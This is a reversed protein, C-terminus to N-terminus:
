RVGIERTRQGVAFALVGYLGAGALLLAIAGFAAFSRAVTREGLSMSRRVGTYDRVWYLPTDADVERMVPALRPPCATAPERKRVAISATKCPAQRLPVLLAPPPVAGPADLLVPAIVGVITVTAGSADRPDLRFRRGLVPNGGGFKEAFRRD